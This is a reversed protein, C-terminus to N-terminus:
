KNLDRLKQFTEPKLVQIAKRKHRCDDLWLTICVLFGMRGVQMIPKHQIAGQMPLVRSLSPISLHVQFCTSCEALQAEPGNENDTDLVRPKALRLLVSNIKGKILIESMYSTRKIGACSGDKRNPM